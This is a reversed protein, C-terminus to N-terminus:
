VLEIEKKDFSHLDNTILGEQKLVKELVDIDTSVDMATHGFLNDLQKEFADRLTQLGNEIKEMAARINEGKVSLTELSGYENLLNTTTPLYYNLFRRISEQLEPKTQVKKLIDESVQIIATAQEVVKQTEITNKAETLEKLENFDTTTQPKVGEEVAQKHANSASEGGYAVFETAKNRGVIWSIVRVLISAIVSFVAVGLTMEYFDTFTSYGEVSLILMLLMWTVGFAYIHAVKKKKTKIPPQNTEM